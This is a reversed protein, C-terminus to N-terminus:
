GGAKALKEYVSPRKGRGRQVLKVEGKSELRRLVHTLSSDLVVLKNIHPFDKKLGLRVDKFTFQSDLKNVVELVAYSLAGRKTRKKNKKLKKGAADVVAARYGRRYAKELGARSRDLIDSIDPELKNM